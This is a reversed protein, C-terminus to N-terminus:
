DENKILNEYYAELNDGIDSLSKYLFTREDDSLNVSCAAVAAGIRDSIHDALKKGEETLQVIENRGYPAYKVYAREQLTKLARSIAAKDELALEGLEKATLGQPNKNLYYCCSVHVPKLGYKSIEYNKIKQILRNLMLVSSTFNTYLDEM